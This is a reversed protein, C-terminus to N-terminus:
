LDYGLRKAHEKMEKALQKMCQVKRNRVTVAANYGLLTAITDMSMNDYYFYRMIMACKEPLRSMALNLAAIMDPDEYPNDSDEIETIRCMTRDTRSQTDDPTEDFLADFDLPIVRGEKANRYIKEVMNKGIKLMYAEWNTDPAIRGKQLNNYIAIFVDNYIDLADSHCLFSYQKCLYNIFKPMFSNYRQRVVEAFAAQQGEPSLEQNDMDTNYPM